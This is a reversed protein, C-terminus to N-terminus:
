KKGKKKGGKAKKSTKAVAATRALKGRAIKQITKAAHDLTYLGFDVGRQVCNLIEDEDKSFAINKDVRDFYESLVAYEASELGFTGNLAELQM